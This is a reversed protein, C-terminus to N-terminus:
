HVVLFYNQTKKYIKGLHVKRRLKECDVPNLSPYTCTVKPIMQGLIFNLGWSPELM